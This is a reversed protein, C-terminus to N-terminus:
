IKVKAKRAIIVNLVVTFFILFGSVMMLSAGIGYADAVLGFMLALIATLFTRWLSQASIVSTLIDNPVQDAILGTLIPKRINEVIYIGVFAMLSIVWLGYSYFLGSVLGFALGILLSINSINLKSKSAVKSSLKSAKSTMLYILFYIVGIFIGIKKEQELGLMIPSLLAINVMLLQIYDKIARLYATHIASTNLIKLVQPKQIISLFSKLTTSLYFKSKSSSSVLSRNLQKPYS